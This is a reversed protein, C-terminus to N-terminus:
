MSSFIEIAIKWIGFAGFIVVCSVVYGLLAQKLDAKEELSGVMYKIGLAIGVAVAAIIGIGLFLNYLFDSTSNLEDEQIDSSAEGQAIFDEASGMIDDVSLSALKVVKEETACFVNTQYTFLFTVFIFIILLCKFKKM